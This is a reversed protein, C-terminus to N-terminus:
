FAISLDRKQGTPLRYFMDVSFGDSRGKTEGDRKIVSIRKIEICSGVFAAAGLQLLGARSHICFTFDFTFFSSFFGIQAGTVMSLCCVILHLHHILELGQRSTIGNLECDEEQGGEPEQEKGEGGEKLREKRFDQKPFLFPDLIWVAYISLM